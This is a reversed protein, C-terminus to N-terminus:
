PNPIYRLLYDLYNETLTYTTNMKEPISDRIKYDRDINSVPAKNFHNHISTALEQKLTNSYYPISLYKSIERLKDRKFRMLQEFTLHGYEQRQSM